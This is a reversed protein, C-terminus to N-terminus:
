PTEMSELLQTLWESLAVGEVPHATLYQTLWMYLAAVAPPPITAIFTWYEHNSRYVSVGRGMPDDIFQFQTGISFDPIQNYGSM